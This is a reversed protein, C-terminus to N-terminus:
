QQRQCGNRTALPSLRCWFLIASLITASKLKNTILKPLINEREANKIAMKGPWGPNAPKISALSSPLPPLLKFRLVHLAGTLNDGGVGLKKCATHGKNSLRSHWLVSPFAFITIKHYLNHYTCPRAQLGHKSPLYLKIRFRFLAKFSNSPQGWKYDGSM